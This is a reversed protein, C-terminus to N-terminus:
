VFKRIAMMVGTHVGEHYNNFNAADDASNIAYGSMTTFPQYNKFLGSAHDTETKKITDILLQRIEDIEAALVSGSPKTGRKYKAVMEGSVAMPLGSLNYVLMQQVVVIHGLNWILNNSFGPPIKNFQDASYDIFFKMLTERSKQTIALSQQM